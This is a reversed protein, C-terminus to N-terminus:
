EYRLAELPNIRSARTAPYIGTFIGVLFSFVLIGVIFQWPTYFLSVAQGGAKQALLNILLNIFQGLILGMIIGSIGGLLGIVSAEIIFLKKVDKKRAGIAKMIGIDRTRELLAITMTNFMGISAVLLAIIGFGALIWQVVKFISDIQNVMDTVSTVTFGLDEIAIKTKELNAMDDVKAKLSTYNNVGARKLEEVPIYAIVSDNDVIGVIKFQKNIKKFEGSQNGDNDLFINFGLEQSMTKQSSDLGFLKLLGTSVIVESPENDTSYLNFFEKQGTTNLKESELYQADVGNLACDTTTGDYIVQSSISIVPSVSQIHSVASIKDVQNDDLKLINSKGTTVDLTTLTSSNIIKNVTVKQLGFGLSVLFLIAGIGIGVGLITLMTRLRNGKLNIFSLRFLDVINM